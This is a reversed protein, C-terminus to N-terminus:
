KKRKRRGIAPRVRCPRVEVSDADLYFLPDGAQGNHPPELQGKWASVAEEIYARMRAKTVDDPLAVTVTFCATDRRM